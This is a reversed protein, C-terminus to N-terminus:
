EAAAISNLFREPIETTGAPFSITICIMYNKYKRLLVKQDIGQTTHANLCTYEQGAYTETTDADFTYGLSTVAEFQSKMSSAYTSEDYLLTGTMSQNEYAVYINSVGDPYAFWVDYFTGNMAKELQEASLGVEDQLVDQGMGLLQMIQEDSYITCNDDITFSLGLTSNTYVNNEDITGREAQISDGSADDSTADDNTAETAEETTTEETTVETTMETAAETTAAEEKGCACLSMAMMASVLVVAIKKKM